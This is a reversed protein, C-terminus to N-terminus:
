ANASSIQAPPTGSRTMAAVPMRIGCSCASRSTRSAAVIISVLKVPCTVASSANPSAIRRRPLPVITTREDTAAIRGRLNL